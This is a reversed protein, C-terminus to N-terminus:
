PYQPKELSLTVSPINGSSYLVSCIAKGDAIVYLTVLIWSPTPQVQRM